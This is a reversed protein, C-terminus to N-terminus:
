GQFGLSEFDDRALETDIHELDAKRALCHRISRGTEVFGLKHQVALSAMNFHFVGSRIAAAKTTCFFWHLSVTVAETMIGQGWYPEGLWYGLVTAPGERHFGVTGIVGDPENTILFAAEHPDGTASKANLWPVTDSASFPLRIQALNGAVNFNNLLEGVREADSLQPRRLVLRETEITPQNQDTFLTQATSM